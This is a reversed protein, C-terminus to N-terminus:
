LRGKLTWHTWNEGCSRPWLVCPLACLCAPYLIIDSPHSPKRFQVFLRLVPKGRGWGGLFLVSAFPFVSSLMFMTVVKYPKPLLHSWYRMRFSVGLPVTAQCTRLALGTQLVSSSFSSFLSCSWSRGEEGVWMGLQGSNALFSTLSALM